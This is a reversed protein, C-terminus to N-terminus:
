YSNAILIVVDERDKQSWLNPFGGMGQTGTNKQIELRNKKAM